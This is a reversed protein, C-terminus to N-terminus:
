EVGINTKWVLLGPAVIPAFQESMMMAKVNPPDFRSLHELKALGSVELTGVENGMLSLFRLRTCRALPLLDLYGEAIELEQLMLHELAPQAVISLDVKSIYQRHLTLSKLARGALPSLDLTRWEGGAISLSELAPLERTFALDLAPQMGTYDLALSALTPHGHLPAFDLVDGGGISLALRTLARCGALPSLDITRAVRASLSSLAAHSALPSLDLAELETAYNFSMEALSPTEGIQSLDIAVPNEHALRVHRTKKTTRVEFSSGDQRRVEIKGV